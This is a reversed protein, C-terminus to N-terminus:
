RVVATDPREVQTVVSTPGVALFYRGFIEDSRPLARQLDARERWVGLQERIDFARTRTRRLRFFGLGRWAEARLRDVLVNQLHCQVVGVVTKRREHSM